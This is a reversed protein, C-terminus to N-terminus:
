PIHGRNLVKLVEETVKEGVIDRFKEYFLDHM